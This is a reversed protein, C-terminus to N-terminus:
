TCYFITGVGTPTFRRQLGCEPPHAFQGWARPPSGLIAAYTPITLRNDGRGHPHVTRGCGSRRRSWITGVGTPTFRTTVSGEGDSNLQGWARPPSGCVCRLSSLSLDNDGRGHPHVPEGSPADPRRSMTGVGTPTFRPGFCLGLSSCCQGWARPPSGRSYRSDTATPANDGRGHPHVAACASTHARDHITGVGTPTFRRTTVTALLPRYQGWARPPSGGPFDPHVADADNDGRGHPHVARSITSKTACWITGM